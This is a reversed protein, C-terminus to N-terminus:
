HLKLTKCLVHYFSAVVHLSEDLLNQKSLLVGLTGHQGNPSPLLKTSQSFAEKGGRGGGGGGGGWGGTSGIVTGFLRVNSLLAAKQKM